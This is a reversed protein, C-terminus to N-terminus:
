DKGNVLKIQYKNRLDEPLCAIISRVIVGHKGAQFREVGVRGTPNMRANSADTVNEIEDDLYTKIHEIIEGM